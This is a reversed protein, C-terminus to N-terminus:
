TRPQMATGKKTSGETFITHSLLQKDFLGRVAASRGSRKISVLDAEEEDVVGAVENLTRIADELRGIMVELRDRLDKERADFPRNINHM